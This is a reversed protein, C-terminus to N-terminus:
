LFFVDLVSKQLLGDFFIAPAYIALGVGAAIGAGKSFFRRAALGLLACSTAGIIAQILRAALLSHGAIAYITGLFYPYLPAQYFVDKGIWDGAAIRQAWEDYGRADGLLVDFFPSSRLQWVHVLRILLALAFVGLAVRLNEAEGTRLKPCESRRAHEPEL